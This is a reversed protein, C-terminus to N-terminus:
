EKCTWETKWYSTRAAGWLSRPDRKWVQPHSSIGGWVLSPSRRHLHGYGSFRQCQWFRASHGRGGVTVHGV